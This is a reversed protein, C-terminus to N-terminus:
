KGQSRSRQIHAKRAEIEEATPERKTDATRGEVYRKWDTLHINRRNPRPIGNKGRPRTWRVRNAAYDRLINALEKERIMVEDPLHEAMIQAQPLYATPDSPAAVFGSADPKDSKRESHVPKRPRSSKAAMARFEGMLTQAAEEFATPVAPLKVFGAPIGLPPRLSHMWRRTGPTVNSLLKALSRHFRRGAVEMREFVKRCENKRENTDRRRKAWKSLEWVLDRYNRLDSLAQRALARNTQNKMTGRERRPAIGFEPPTAVAEALELQRRELQQRVEGALEFTARGILGSVFDRAQRDDRDARDREFRVGTRTRQKGDGAVGAVTKRYAREVIRLAAAYEPHGSVSIVARQIRAVEDRLWAIRAEESKFAGPRARIEDLRDRVARRASLFGDVRIKAANVYAKVRRTDAYGSSPYAGPPWSVRQWMKRLGRDIETRESQLYVASANTAEIWPKGYHAHSYIAGPDSLLAQLEAAIKSLGDREDGPHELM